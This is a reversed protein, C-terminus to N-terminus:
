RDVDGPILETQLQRTLAMMKPFDSERPPAVDAPLEFSQAPEGMQRFWEEFGSPTCLTVM